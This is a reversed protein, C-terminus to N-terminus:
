KGAERADAMAKAGVHEGSEIQGILANLWGGENDGGEKEWWEMHALVDDREVRREDSLHSGISLSPGLTIICTLEDPGAEQSESLAARAIKALQGDKVEWHTEPNEKTATWEQHQDFRTIIELAKRLREIEADKAATAAAVSQLRDIISRIDHRTLSAKRVTFDPGSSAEICYRLREVLADAATTLREKVSSPEAAQELMEAVQADFDADGKCYFGTQGFRVRSARGRLVKAMKVADTM